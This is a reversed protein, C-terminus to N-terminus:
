LILIARIIAIAFVIPTVPVSKSHLFGNADTLLFYNSLGSPSKARVINVKTPSGNVVIRAPIVPHGSRQIDM